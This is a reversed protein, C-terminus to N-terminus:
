CGCLPDPPEPSCALVSSTLCQLGSHNTTRCFSVCPTPLVPPYGPSPLPSGTSSFVDFIILNSHPSPTVTWQAASSPFLLIRLLFLPYLPVPTQGLRRLSLLLTARLQSTPSRALWALSYLGEGPHPPLDSPNVTLVRVGIQQRIHDHGYSCLQAPLQHLAPFLQGLGGSGLFLESGGGTM